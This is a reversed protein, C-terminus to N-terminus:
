FNQKCFSVREAPLNTNVKKYCKDVYEMRELLGDNNAIQINLGPRANLELMLPGHTKDLVLDVGLYGLGTLEYSQAAILLMEDWTPIAINAISNLTDPHFAIPQNDLVGQLTKGSHIDIGCGIAGQHLNAKGQSMRTPLRLMAMIPFGRYVILRIDPVGEFSVASFVDDVEM